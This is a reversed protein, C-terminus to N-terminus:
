EGEQLKKYEDLTKIFKEGIEAITNGEKWRGQLFLIEELDPLRGLLEQFKNEIENKFEADIEAHKLNDYNEEM